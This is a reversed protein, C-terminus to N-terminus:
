FKYSYVIGMEFSNLSQVPNCLQEKMTYKRKLSSLALCKYFVASGCRTNGGFSIHVFNVQDGMYVLLRV